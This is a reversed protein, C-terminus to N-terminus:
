RRRQLNKPIVETPPEDTVEVGERADTMGDVPEVM